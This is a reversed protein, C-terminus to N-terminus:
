GKAASGIAMLQESIGLEGEEGLVMRWSPEMETFGELSRILSLAQGNTELVGIRLPTDGTEVAMSELLDLPQRIKDSVLWPGISVVGKGPQGMIFGSIRDKIFITKCFRPFCALRYELYSHRDAGFAAKDLQNVIKMDQAVMPKVLDSARGPIRGIFRHSKAVHRFGIREYLPVAPTDGDLYVSKCGLGHLYQISHELLQRGTGRRRQEKVVILEGLFGQEGYSVAICMGVPRSNEEAIFCGDGDFRLFARFVYDTEGLWGESSVCQLAFPLDTEHMPRILM